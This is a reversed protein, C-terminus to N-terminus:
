RVGLRVGLVRDDVRVTLLDAHVAIATADSAWEARVPVSGAPSALVLEATRAFGRAADRRAGVTLVATLRPSGTEVADVAPHRLEIRSEDGSDVDLVVFEPADSWTTYALTQGADFLRVVPASGGTRAISRRVVPVGRGEALEYLTVTAPLADQGDPAEARAGAIVAFRDPDDSVDVAYVTPEVAASVRQLDIPEGAEDLVVPGGAALGLGTPGASAAIATLPAALEIRWREAGSRTWESLTGGGSSLVFLRDHEFVPYGSLPVSALFEGAPSQVVLQGPLRGYNVFADAALAVDHAVRGTSVVRGNADVYAFSDAVRIPFVADAVPDPGDVQASEPRIAWVADVVLEERTPEPHWLIYICVLLLAFLIRRAPLKM